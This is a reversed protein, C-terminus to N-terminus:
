FSVTLLYSFRNLLCLRNTDVHGIHIYYECEVELCLVYIYRDVVVM